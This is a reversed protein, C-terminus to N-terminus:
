HHHHPKYDSSYITHHADHWAQRDYFSWVAAFCIFVCAATFILADLTQKLKM